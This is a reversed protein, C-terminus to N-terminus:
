SLPGTLCHAQAHLLARQGCQSSRVAQCVLQMAERAHLCQYTSGHDSPLVKTSSPFLFSSPSFPQVKLCSDREQHFYVAQGKGKRGPRLRRKLSTAQGAQRGKGLLQPALLKQSCRHAPLLQHAPPLSAPAGAQRHQMRAPILSYPMPLM